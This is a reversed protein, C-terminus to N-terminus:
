EAAKIRSGLLRKMDQARMFAVVRLFNWLGFPSTVLRSRGKKIAYIISDSDREADVLTYTYGIQFVTHADSTGLLPLGLEDARAVARRNFNIFRNYLHCFEIADFLEPRADLLKGCSPAWPFYPHAAMVLSTECKHRLIDDPSNVRGPEGFNILVVHQRRWTLEMGPIIVLGRERAYGTLRPNIAYHDHNTVAFGDFGQRVMEDVLQEPGHPIHDFVDDSTHVHFDLKLAKRDM